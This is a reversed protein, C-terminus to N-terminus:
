QTPGKIIAFAIGAVVALCGLLSIRRLRDSTDCIPQFKRPMDARNRKFRFRENFTKLEDASLSMEQAKHANWARQGFVFAILTVSLLPLFAPFLVM